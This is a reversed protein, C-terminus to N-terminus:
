LHFAGLSSLSKPLLQFIWGEVCPEHRSWFDSREQEHVGVQSASFHGKSSRRWNKRKSPTFIVEYELNKGSYIARQGDKGHWCYWHYSISLVVSVDWFPENNVFNWFLVWMSIEDFWLNMSKLIIWYCNYSIVSCIFFFSM